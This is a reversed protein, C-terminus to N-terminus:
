SKGRRLLRRPGWHWERDFIHATSEGAVRSIRGDDGTDQCIPGVYGDMEDLAIQLFRREQALCRLRDADGCSHVAHSDFGKCFAEAAREIDDGGLCPM